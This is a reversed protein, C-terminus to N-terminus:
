RRKKLTECVALAWELVVAALPPLVLTCLLRNWGPVFYSQWARPPNLEIERVRLLIEKRNGPDIRLMEVNGYPLEFLYSGDKQLRAFERRRLSFGAQGPRTYYLDIEGPAGSAELVLRVRRVMGTQPPLVLQPDTNEALLWGEPQETLNVPRCEGVPVRRHELLGAANLLSDAAWQGATNLVSAALFVIWCAAFLHEKLWQLGKKM